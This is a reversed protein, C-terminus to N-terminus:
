EESPGNSVSERKRADRKAKANRLRELSAARTDLMKKEAKPLPKENLAPLRELFLPLLDEGVAESIDKIAEIVDKPNM